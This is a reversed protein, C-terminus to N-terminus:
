ISLEELASEAEDFASENAAAADAEMDLESEIEAAKSELADAFESLADIKEQIDQGATGQQLGDPMGDLSEQYEDRVNGIEEACTNLFSPVDRADGTKRAAAIEAEASEVAAYAASMKSQTLQSARPIGHSTHQRHTGGYRFSWEHYTQGAMIKESCRDCSYPEGANNKRKTNVRPM